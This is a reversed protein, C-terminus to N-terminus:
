GRNEKAIAVIGLEQAPNITLYAIAGVLVSTDDRVDRLV